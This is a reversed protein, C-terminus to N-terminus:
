RLEDLDETAPRSFFYTLKDRLEKRAAATLQLLKNCGEPVPTNKKERRIMKCEFRYMTKFDVMYHGTECDTKGTKVHYHRLLGHPEYVFCDFVVYGPAENLKATKEEPLLKEWVFPSLSDKPAVKRNIRTLDEEFHPNKFFGHRVKGLPALVVSGEEISCCPTMVVLYRPRDVSIVLDRPTDESEVLRDSKPTAIAFGRVVDGLRLCNTPENTYFQSM